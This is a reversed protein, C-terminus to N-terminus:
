YPRILYIFITNKDSFYDTLASNTLPYECTAFTKLFMETSFLVGQTQFRTAFDHRM